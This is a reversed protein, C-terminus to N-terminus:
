TPATVIGRGRLVERVSWRPKRGSPSGGGGWGRWGPGEPRGHVERLCARLGRPRCRCRHAGRGTGADAGSSVSVPPRRYVLGSDGFCSSLLSAQSARDSGPRRSNIDSFHESGQRCQLLTAQKFLLSPVSPERVRSVQHLDSVEQEEAWPPM